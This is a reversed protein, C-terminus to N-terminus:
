KFKLLFDQTNRWKMVHDFQTTSSLQMEVYQELSYLEPKFDFNLMPWNIAWGNKEIGDKLPIDYQVYTPSKNKSSIRSADINQLINFVSPAASLGIWQQRAHYEAAEDIAPGIISDPSEIILGYSICGRFHFGTGIGSGMLWVLASGVDLVSEEKNGGYVTIFITDSFVTFRADYYKKKLEEVINKKILNVFVSWQYIVTDPDNTRWIGKTGIRDMLVLIGEEKRKVFNTSNSAM